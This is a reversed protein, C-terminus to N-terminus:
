RRRNEALIQFQQQAAAIDEQTLPRQPEMAELIRVQERIQAAEILQRVLEDDLAAPPPEPANIEQLPLPLAYDGTNIGPPRPRPVEAHTRFGRRLNVQEDENRNERERERQRREEDMRIRQEEREVMSRENRRSHFLHVVNAAPIKYTIEQGLRNLIMVPNVSNVSTILQEVNIEYNRWDRHIGPLNDSDQLPNIDRLAENAALWSGTDNLSVDQLPMNAMNRIFAINEHLNRFNFGRLNPAVEYRLYNRSMSRRRKLVPVGEPLKSKLYDRVMFGLTDWSLNLSRSNTFIREQKGADFIDLIAIALLADNVAENNLVTVTETM